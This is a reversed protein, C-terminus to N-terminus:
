YESLLLPRVKFDCIRVLAVSVVRVMVSKSIDLYYHMMNLYYGPAANLIFHLPFFLGRQEPTHTNLITPTHQNLTPPNKKRRKRVM